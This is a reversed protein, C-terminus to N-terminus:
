YFHFPNDNGGGLSQGLGPISVVDGTDGANAPPIKLVSGGLSGMYKRLDLQNIISNLDEIRVCKKHM